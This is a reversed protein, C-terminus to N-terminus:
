RSATRRRRAVVVAGAGAVVLAGSALAIGAAEFGTEALGGPAGAGGGGAAASVTIVEDGVLQGAENTVSASYTGAASLTVRWSVQECSATKTVAKTGAIQIADNRISAPDSTITLTYEADCDTGTTTIVFSEGVAPTPDSATTNYGPAEYAMAASPLFALAAAGAAILASRRNVARGELRHPVLSTM